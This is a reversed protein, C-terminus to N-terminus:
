LAAALKELESKLILSHQLKSYFISVRAYFITTYISQSFKYVKGM